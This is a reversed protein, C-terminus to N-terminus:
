NTPLVPPFRLGAFFLLACVGLFAFYLYFVWASTKGPFVLDERKETATYKKVTPHVVVFYSFIAIATGAVVDAVFHQRLTTTSIAIFSSGLIGWIGVRPALKICCATAFVANAVHLSPFCNVPKDLIYNLAVGWYFINEQTPIGPRPMRVPMFIFFPLAILSCLLFGAIMRLFIPRHKITFVPLFIFVYVLAYGLITWPVFPIFDDIFTSLGIGPRDGYLINPVTYIPMGIAMTMVGLLINQSLLPLRKFADMM